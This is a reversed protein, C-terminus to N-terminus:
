PITVATSVLPKLQEKQTCPLPGWGVAQTPTAVHRERALSVRAPTISDSRSPCRLWLAFHWM